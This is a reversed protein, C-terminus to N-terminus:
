ATDQYPFAGPNELMSCVAGAERCAKCPQSKPEEPKITHNHDTTDLATDSADPLDDQYISLSALFDKGAQMTVILSPRQKPRKSSRKQRLLAREVKPDYDDTCDEDLWSTLVATTSSRKRLSYRYRDPPTSNPTTLPHLFLRKARELTEPTYEM